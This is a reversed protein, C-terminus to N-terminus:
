NNDIIEEEFVDGDEFFDPKYSEKITKGDLSIFLNQLFSSHDEVFWSQRFNYYENGNKDKVKAFYTYNIVNGTANDKIGYKNELIKQADEKSIINESNLNEKNTQEIENVQDEEFIDGDEFFDSKYSEKITKGDLSIFLNQLFSSHDEVFWSQRFNYYENGNKDKVKAFYTYNIVNGTANDKTGYKNELIKQAQEKSIINGDNLNEKNAQEKSIINGDNLNEKNTQEIQNVTKEQNIIDNEKVNNIIKNTEVDNRPNVGIIIAGIIGVLLVIGLVILVIKIEKKM